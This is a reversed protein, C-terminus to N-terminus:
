HRREAQSPSPLRPFQWGHGCGQECVLGAQVVFRRGAMGLRRISQTGHEAGEFVFRELIEGAFLRWGGGAFLEFADVGREVDVRHHLCHGLAAVAREVGVRM